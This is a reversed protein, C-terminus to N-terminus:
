LKQAMEKSVAMINTDKGRTWIILIGAQEHLVVVENAGCTLVKGAFVYKEGPNVGKSGGGKFPGLQNLVFDEAGEKTLQAGGIPKLGEAISIDKENLTVSYVMRGDGQEFFWVVARKNAQPGPDGLRARIEKINEGVRAHAIVTTACILGLALWGRYKM